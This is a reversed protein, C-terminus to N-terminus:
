AAERHEVEGRADLHPTVSGGMKRSAMEELRMGAAILGMGAIGEIATWYLWLLSGIRFGVFVFVAVIGGVALLLWGVARLALARQELEEASLQKRIHSM